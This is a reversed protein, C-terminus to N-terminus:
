RGTVGGVEAVHNDYHGSARLISEHCTVSKWMAWASGIEDSNWLRGPSCFIRDVRNNDRPSMVAFGKLEWWHATLRASSLQYGKMLRRAARHDSPLFRPFGEEKSLFSLSCLLSPVGTKFSIIALLHTRWPFHVHIMTIHNRLIGFIYIAVRPISM